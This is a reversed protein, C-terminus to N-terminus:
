PPPSRSDNARIYAVFVAFEDGDLLPFLEAYRHPRMPM